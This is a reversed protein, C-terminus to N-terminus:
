EGKGSEAKETVPKSNVNSSARHLDDLRCISNKCTDTPNRGPITALLPNIRAAVDGSAPYTEHYVKVPVLWRDRAKRIKENATASKDWQALMSVVGDMQVELQQIAARPENLRLHALALAYMGARSAAEVEKPIMMWHTYAYWLWCCMAIAGLVFSALGVVIILIKTKM